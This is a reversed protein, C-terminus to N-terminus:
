GFTYEYKKPKGVYKNNFGKTTNMCLEDYSRTDFPDIMGDKVAFIVKTGQISIFPNDGQKIVNLLWEDTKLKKDKM